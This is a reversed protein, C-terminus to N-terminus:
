LLSSTTYKTGLMFSEVSSAHQYFLLQLRIRITPLPNAVQSAVGM